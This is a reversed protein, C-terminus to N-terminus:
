SKYKKRRWVPDEAGSIRSATMPITPFSNLDSLNPGLVITPEADKLRRAIEATQIAPTGSPSILLILFKGTKMTVASNEM